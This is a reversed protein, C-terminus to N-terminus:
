IQFDGFIEMQVEGGTLEVSQAVGQAAPIEKTFKYDFTEDIIGNNTRVVGFMYVINTNNYLLAQVLSNRQIRSKM